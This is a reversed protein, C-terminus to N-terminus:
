VNDILRTNKLHYAIFINFKENKSKPKKLNQVNLMELYDLKTVGLKKLYNSIKMFKFKFNNSKKLIPKNKKILKYVNSAIKIQQTTLNKNRSSCAVGNKERITKCPIVKTLINRKKLHRTILYLQQYDKKGLYIFRPNIIELLRNVVNVVGLFHNKRFKGCLKKSFKDLYVKNKVKFGYIDNFTPLYLYDIKLKKLKLIDNKLNRPYSHFDNKKNFQKPNIFISVCVKYKYKFAKDILSLHGKHLGGMTPVFSIFNDKAIEKQLSLKNKFIKM